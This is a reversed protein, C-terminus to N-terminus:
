APKLFPVRILKPADVVFSREAEERLRTFHKAHLEGGGGFPSEAPATHWLAQGIELRELPRELNHSAYEGLYQELAPHTMGRTQLFIKTATNALLVEVFYPDSLHAQTLDTRDAYVVTFNHKRGVLLLERLEPGVLGACRDLVLLFPLADTVHSRAAYSSLLHALFRRMRDQQKANDRIDRLPIRMCRSYREPNNWAAPSLERRVRDFAKGRGCRDLWGQLLRDTDGDVNGDLYLFGGGQAAHQVMMLNLLNSIGAGGQGFVAVHRRLDRYSLSLPQYSYDIHGIQVRGPSRARLLDDASVARAPKDRFISIIRDLLRM